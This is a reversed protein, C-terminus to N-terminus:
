ATRPIAGIFPFVGAVNEKRTEGTQSNKIEVAELHSDGFMAAIESNKLLEINSTQEIRQALYNSM